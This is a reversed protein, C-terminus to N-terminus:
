LHTGVWPLKPVVPKFFNVKANYLTSTNIQHTESLEETVCGNVTM